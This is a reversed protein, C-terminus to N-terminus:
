RRGSNVNKLCAIVDDWSIAGARVLRPEAATVDVMTSPAGGPTVGADLLFDLRDGLTGEVVDPDATAPEGSRNASTATVPHGCAACVARAVDNAPVRVGVAGTGGTVDPALRAAAPLLLTLPGPWFRGALVAASASLPGLHAIVQAIDAAILPLARDADRGKAEFVRAVAEARFPDAALGYLTDTPLAIVGGRRIWMAAEQIADRQPAGPDVFVRRMARIM